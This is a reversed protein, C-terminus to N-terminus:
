IIHAPTKLECFSLLEQNQLFVEMEKKELSVMAEIGEGDKSDMLLIMNKWPFEPVTIWVPKGWGFDVDYVPFKCWSSCTYLTCDGPNRVKELSEKAHLKYLLGWQEARYNTPFTKCFEEFNRKMDGVLDWLEMEQQEPMTLSAIFSSIINGSLTAPLPPDVRNRLNILQLLTTAPVYSHYLKFIICVLILVGTVSNKASLAAKYIFATLLQVRTPNEVKECVMSKLAAIKSGEFVFRKSSVVNEDHRETRSDEGGGGDLELPFFSAGNFQPPSSLTPPDGDGSSRAIFAWDKMFNTLSAFDAIKHSCLVYMVEGGCEFQTLQVCLLPNLRQDNGDNIEDFFTLKLIEECEMNFNNMFESMPCRLKAESVIAGMDNCDISNGGDQLRGAFPYYFTLAKSLSDKLLQRGHSSSINYSNYFYLLRIYMNPAQQDFLSLPLNKLEPPTSSLPKITEKSVIELEM